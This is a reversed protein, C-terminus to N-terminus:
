RHDGTRKFQDGLTREISAINLYEGLADAEARTVKTPQEELM